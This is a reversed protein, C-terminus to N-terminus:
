LLGNQRFEVEEAQGGAEESSSLLTLHLSPFPLPFNNWGEM